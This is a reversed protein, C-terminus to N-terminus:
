GDQGSRLMISLRAPWLGRCCLHSPDFQFSRLTAALVSSAHHLVAFPGDDCERWCFAPCCLDRMIIALLEYGVNDAPSYYGTVIDPCIRVNICDDDDVIVRWYRKTFVFLLAVPRTSTDEQM